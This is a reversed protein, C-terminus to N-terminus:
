FPYYEDDKVVREEIGKNNVCRRASFCPILTPRYIYEEYAVTGPISSSGAHLAHFSSSFGFVTLYGSYM